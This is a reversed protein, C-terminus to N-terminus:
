LIGYLEALAHIEYTPCVGGTLERRRPNFWCTDIGAAIGGAIDSTLSDGIVLAERCSFGVINNKVYNFYAPSPKEAGVEESIFSKEIYQKIASAGLRSQQINKIGNTIIFLRCKGYLESCLERAGDVLYSKEALRDTYEAALAWPDVALGYKEAFLEFRKVRLVDKAIGGRELLKWLRDNIESYGSILEDSPTVGFKMLADTLAEHESRGFDLLTDDADFLLYKYKMPKKLRGTRIYNAKASKIICCPLPNKLRKKSYKRM